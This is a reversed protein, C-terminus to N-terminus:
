QLGKDCADTFEATNEFVMLSYSFAETLGGEQMAVLLKEALLQAKALVAKRGKANSMDKWNHCEENM